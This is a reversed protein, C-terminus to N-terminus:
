SSQSRDGAKIKPFNEDIFDFSIIKFNCWAIDIKGHLVTDWDFSNLIDNLGSLDACKYNYVERRSSTTKKKYKFTKM